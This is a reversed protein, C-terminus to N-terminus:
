EDSNLVDVLKNLKNVLADNDANAKELQKEISEIATPIKEFIARIDSIPLAHWFRQSDSVDYMGSGDDIAKLEITSTTLYFRETTYATYRIYVPAESMLLECDDTAERWADMFKEVGHRVWSGKQANEEALKKLNKM